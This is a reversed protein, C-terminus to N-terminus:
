TLFQGFSPPLSLRSQKEKSLRIGRSTEVSAANLVDTRLNPANYVRLGRNVLRAYLSEAALTLNPLTQPFPEVLIGAQELTTMTGHMQFPDCLVKEIRTSYNEPRRLFFEITAEFDM